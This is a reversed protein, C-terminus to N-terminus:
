GWVYLAGDDATTSIQVSAYNISQQLPVGFVGGYQGGGEGARSGSAAAGSGGPEDKGSFAKWWTKLGQAREKDSDRSSTPHIPESNLYAPTDGDGSTYNAATPYAVRGRAPNPPPRASVMHTLRAPRTRPHQSAPASPFSLQCQTRSTICRCRLHSPVLTSISSPLHISFPIQRISLNVSQRSSPLVSAPNRSTTTTTSRNIVCLRLWGDVAWRGVWDRGGTASRPTRVHMHRGEVPLKGEKLFRVFSWGTWASGEVRSGRVSSVFVVAM